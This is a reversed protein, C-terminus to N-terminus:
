SHEGFDEGMWTEQYKDHVWNENDNNIDENSRNEEISAAVNYADVLNDYNMKNYIASKKIITEQHQAYLNHVDSQFENENKWPIYLMINEYMFEDPNKNKNFRWHRLIKQKKRLKFLKKKGSHIMMPLNILQQYHQRQDMHIIYENDELQADPDEYNTKVENYWTAFDALCLEDNDHRHAYHQIIGDHYIDTSDPNSEALKQLIEQPKM